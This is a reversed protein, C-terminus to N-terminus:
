GLVGVVGLGQGGRRHRQQGEDDRRCGPEQQQARGASPDQGEREDRDQRHQGELGREM